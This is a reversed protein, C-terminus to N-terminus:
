EVSFDFLEIGRLLGYEGKAVANRPTLKWVGEAEEVAEYPLTWERDPTNGATASFARSRGMKVSRDSDNSELRVIFLRSDPKQSSQVRLALNSDKTSVSAHLGDFNLWTLFGVFIYTASAEGQLSELDYEGDTTILQVDSKRRETPQQGTGGVSAPAGLMADIVSKSVGAKKLEILADVSTDFASRGTQRIKAVVTSDDLGAKVLAIVDANTLPTSAAPKDAATAITALVFVALALIAVNRKM